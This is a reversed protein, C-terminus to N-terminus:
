PTAATGPRAPAYKPVFRARERPGLAARRKKTPVIARTRRGEDGDTNGNGHADTEVARERLGTSGKGIARPSDHGPSDAGPRMV